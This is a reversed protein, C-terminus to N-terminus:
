ECKVKSSFTISCNIQFIVVSRKAVRVCLTLFIVLSDQFFLGQCLCFCQGHHKAMLRNSDKDYFNFFDFTRFM